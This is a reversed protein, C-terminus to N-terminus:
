IPNMQGHEPSPKDAKITQIGQCSKRMVNPTRRPKIPKGKGPPTARTLTKAVKKRNSQSGSSASTNQDQNPITSPFWRAAGQIKCPSDIILSEM